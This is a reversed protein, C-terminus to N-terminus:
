LFLSQASVRWAVGLASGSALKLFPARRPHGPGAARLPWSYLYGSDRDLDRLPMLVPNSAFSIFSPERLGLSAQRPFSPTLHSIILGYEM